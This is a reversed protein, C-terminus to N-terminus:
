PVRKHSTEENNRYKSCMRLMRHDTESVSYIKCSSSQHQKSPKQKKFKSILRHFTDVASSLVCVCVCVCWVCV